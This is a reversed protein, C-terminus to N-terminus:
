ALKAFTKEVFQEVTMPIVGFRQAAPKWNTFANTMTATFYGMSMLRSAMENFPRLAISGTRLVVKPLHRRKAKVGLRREIISTVDSFSCTTPGGVDILENRITPDDLIQLSFEAVDDVSIFNARTNGDGFLMVPKGQRIAGGILTEVWTEMFVTPAILVWPVGCDRVLADVHYKIRFFDVPSNPGGSDQAGVHVIRSVGQQRVATCINRYAALDVRNPSSAGSGMANNATTYVQEVGECSKNVFASDLLDGEAVEAGLAELAALKTPNRGLARVRHGTELLRRTVAGGLQGTAGVVLVLGKEM